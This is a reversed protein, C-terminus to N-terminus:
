RGVSNLEGENKTKEREQKEDNRKTENNKEKMVKVVEKIQFANTQSRQGELSTDM